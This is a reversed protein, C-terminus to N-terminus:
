LWRHAAELIDRLELQEARVEVTSGRYASSDVLAAGGLFASRIERLPGRRGESKSSFEVSLGTFVGQRINEVADRGAATNPVPSDIRVEDGDVFPIARLIPSKRDHQANVVIGGEPWTLAGRTFIEPRDKAPVEYRMLVGVIRGPSERSPDEMQRIEFTLEDM